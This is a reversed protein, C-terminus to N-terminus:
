ENISWDRDLNEWEPQENSRFTQGIPLLNILGCDSQDFQQLDEDNIKWELRFGDMERYFSEMGKSLEGGAAEIALRIDDNTAPHGFAVGVLTVKPNQQLEKVMEEFRKKYGM